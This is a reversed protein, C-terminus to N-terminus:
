IDGVIINFSVYLYNGEALTDIFYESYYNCNREYFELAFARFMEEVNDHESMVTDALYEASSSYGSELADTWTFEEGNNGNMDEDNECLSILSNRIDERDKIDVKLM